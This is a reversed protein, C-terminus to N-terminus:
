TGDCAASRARYGSPGDDTKALLPLPRVEYVQGACYEQWTCEACKLIALIMARLVIRYDSAPHISNQHAQYLTALATPRLYLCAWL